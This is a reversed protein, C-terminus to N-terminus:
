FVEGARIRAWLARADLGTYLMLFDFLNGGRGWVHCYWCPAGPGRPEHVWLSPHADKGDAHHEGFPCCGMGRRDLDVYHAIVAVSDQAACWARISTFSTLSAGGGVGAVYTHTGQGAAQDLVPLAPAVALVDPVTVREVHALWALTESVSRAVPALRGGERQVFPYRRGSRRHVGLPVRILSGPESWSAREQKPYLEMGVPCYPRLFSRVVDPAAAQALFVWLHGARRSLELASAVGLAALRDQVGVLVALDDAESRGDADIVAFRCLGREDILYTGLTLSGALHLGLLEWTLPEGVRRYRGDGQQLAYSDRRGICRALLFRLTDRDWFVLIVGKSCFWCAFLFNDILLGSCVWLQVRGGFLRGFMGMKPGLFAMRLNERRSSCDYLWGYWFPRTIIRALSGLAVELAMRALKDQGYMKM